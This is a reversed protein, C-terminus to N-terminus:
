QEINIYLNLDKLFQIESQTTDLIQRLRQQLVPYLCQGRDGRHFREYQFHQLCFHLQM